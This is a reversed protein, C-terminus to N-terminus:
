YSRLSGGLKERVIWGNKEMARRALPDISGEIWLEKKAKVQDGKLSKSFVDMKIWLPQTWAVHDLPFQGVLTGDNKVLFPVGNIDVIAEAASINNIYGEMMQAKRRMFRAVSKEDALAAMGIFIDRGKVKKMDDLEGILLTAEMPSYHHNDLFADALEESIGMSLLKNRNIKALAAPPNDRVLQRMSESTSTVRVVTGPRDKIAQFALKPTLGGAFGARAITSLKKQVPEFETYPDIGYAFAFQRKAAAYGVATKLANEQYPDDSTISRGVDSFWRGIGSVTGSVTDIPHAVLNKAFTVPAKAGKKFAKKFVDTREVAEMHHLARLENIRITLQETGEIRYTGHDSQLVYTNVFGDNLVEPEVTYNEWKIMEAPLVDAVKLQIPTKQLDEPLQAAAQIPYFMMAYLLIARCSRTLGSFSRM